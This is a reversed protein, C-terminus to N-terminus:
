SKNKKKKSELTKFDAFGSLEIFTCPSFTPDKEEGNYVHVAPTTVM